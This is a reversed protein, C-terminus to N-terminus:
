RGYIKIDINNTAIDPKDSLAKFTENFKSISEGGIPPSELQLRDYELKAWKSLEDCPRRDSRPLSLELVMQRYFSGFQKSVDLHNQYKEDSNYFQKLSALLATLINLSGLVYMTTTQDAFNTSGFSAVGTLTSLLIVPLSLRNSTKKWTTAANFHLWRLGASKIGWSRMLDEAEDNWSAENLKKQLESFKAANLAQEEDLTYNPIKSQLEYEHNDDSM